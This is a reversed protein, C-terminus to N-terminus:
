GNRGNNKIECESSRTLKEAIKLNLDRSVLGFIAPVKHKCAYGLLMLPDNAKHAYTM